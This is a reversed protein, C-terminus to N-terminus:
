RMVGMWEKGVNNLIVFAVFVLALVISIRASMSKKGNWTSVRM